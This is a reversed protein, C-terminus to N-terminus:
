GGTSKVTLTRRYHEPQELVDILCAAYDKRSLVDKSTIDSLGCFRYGVPPGDTLTPARVITWAWGTQQKISAAAKRMNGLSYPTFWALFTYMPLMFRQRLTPREDAEHAVTVEGATFVLRRVGSAAAAKSLAAVLDTAKLRGVSISVAVVADCGALAEGLIDENSVVPATILTLGDSGAFGDLKEVSADRSVGITEFGRDLSQRILTLGTKGSAGIIAVKM